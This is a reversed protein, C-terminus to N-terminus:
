KELDREFTIEWTNWGKIADFNTHHEMAEISVARASLHIGRIAANLERVTSFRITVREIQQTTM